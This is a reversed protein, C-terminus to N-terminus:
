WLEKRGEQLAPSQFGYQALGNELIAFFSTETYFIVWLIL